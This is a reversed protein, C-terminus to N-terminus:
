RTPRGWTVEAVRRGLRRLSRRRSRGLADVAAMETDDLTFGFVDLNAAIREPRSSKPIAIVEHQLHWRIVIQEVTVGHAAAVRVLTPDDRATSKFPSYGELAIGRDRHGALV